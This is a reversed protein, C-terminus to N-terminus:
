LASRRPHIKREKFLCPVALFLSVQASVMNTFTRLPWSSASNSLLMDATEEKVHATVAPSAPQEEDHRQKGQRKAWSIHGPATDKNVEGTVKRGHKWRRACRGLPLQGAMGLCQETCFLGFTNHQSQIIWCMSLSLSLSMIIREEVYSREIMAWPFIVSHLQERTKRGPDEVTNTLVTSKEHLIEQVPKQSDLDWFPGLIQKDMAQPIGQLDLGWKM